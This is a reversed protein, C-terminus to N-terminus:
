GHQGGGGGEGSEAEPGGEADSGTGARRILGLDSIQLTKCSANVLELERKKDAM